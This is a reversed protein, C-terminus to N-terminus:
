NEIPPPEEAPADITIGIRTVPPPSNRLWVGKRDTEFRADPYQTHVAALQKIFFARFDRVRTYGAGFQELLSTWPVFEQRQRGIRHLRQALWTYIDLAMASHSLAAIAREDLPVAHAALSEFYHDNLVVISSWLNTQRPHNPAWLDMGTIINTNLQTTRGDHVMALRVTAVGLSTLQRQFTRLHPGSPHYGIIRQAYATLSRGVEIAPEGSRLAEGNLHMLILRVRSGYPLPMEVFEDTRPDLAEGAVVRLRVRGNRRDWTRERMARYPMATQCLVTHQYTIADPDDLSIEAGSRILRDTIPTLTPLDGPSKRPRSM